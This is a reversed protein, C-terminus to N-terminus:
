TTWTDNDINAGEYGQRRMEINVNKKNNDYTNVPLLHSKVTDLMPLGRPNFQAISDGNIKTLVAEAERAINIIDNPTNWTSQYKWYGWCDTGNTIMHYHQFPSLDSVRRTSVNLVSKDRTTIVFIVPTAMKKSFSFEIEQNNYMKPWYLGRVYWILDGNNGRTVTLGKVAHEWTVDPMPSSNRLRDELMREKRYYEDKVADVISMVESMKSQLFNKISQLRDRVKNKIEENIDIENTEVVVLKCVKNGIRVVINDSNINNIDFDNIKAFMDDKLNMIKSIKDDM